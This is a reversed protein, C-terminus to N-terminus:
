APIVLPDGFYGVLNVTELIDIVVESHGTLRLNKQGAAAWRKAMILLQLGASDMDSIQSLDIEVERCGSLADLLLERVEDAQSLIFDGSLRLICLGDRKEIETQM